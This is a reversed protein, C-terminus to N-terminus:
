SELPRICVRLGSRADCLYNETIHEVRGVFENWSPPADPRSQFSASIILIPAKAACKFVENLLDAPEFTYQHFKPCALKWHRLGIAHALDDNQGLRAYTGSNGITLLRRAEPSLEGLEAYVESFSWIREIYEQLALTGAMLYGILIVLGLTPLRAKSRAVDLLPTLGLVALTSPIYLIQKHQWWLGTMSLVALSGIFTLICAGAIARQTRNRAQSGSLIIFNLMVALLIPIVEGFLRWGGIRRMHEALAAVGKKSGILIGQSYAFNLRITEIFPLLESRVALVCVILIASLLASLGLVLVELLRRHALLFSGVGILAIPVFILKTFALLGICAGTMIPRGYASATIAVLVLAIGPLETYGAFYFVGTLTIPVAILSIAVATWQSSLKVAMFHVAAAAIAILLAEAAAEAWRGLALQAAVFYYFLPEKNDYVGSYLIDGALLREAVSVFIGRDLHSNPLLRPGIGLWTTLVAAVLVPDFRSQRAFSELALSQTSCPSLFGCYTEHSLM